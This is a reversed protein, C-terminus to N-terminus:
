TLIWYWYHAMEDPHIRRALENRDEKSLPSDETYIVDRTAQIVLRRALERIPDLHFDFEGALRQITLAIRKYLGWQLSSRSGTAQQIYFHQKSSKIINVLPHGNRIYYAITQYEVNFRNAVPVVTLPEAILHNYPEPNQFLEQLAKNRHKGKEAEKEHQDFRQEVTQITSGIYVYKSDLKRRIGYIYAVETHDGPIQLDFHPTQSEQGCTWIDFSVDILDLLDENSAERNKVAQQMVQLGRWTVARALYSIREDISRTRMWAETAEEALKEYDIEAPM